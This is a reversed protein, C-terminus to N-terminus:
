MNPFGGDAKQIINAQTQTVEYIENDIKIEMGM